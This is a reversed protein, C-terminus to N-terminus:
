ISNENNQTNSKWWIEVPFFVFFIGLIPSAGSLQVSKKLLNFKTFPNSLKSSEDWKSEISNKQPQLLQHLRQNGKQAALNIQVRQSLVTRM